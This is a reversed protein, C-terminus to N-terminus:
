KQWSAKVKSPKSYLEFIAYELDIFSALFIAIFVFVVFSAFLLILWVTARASTRVYNRYGHAVHISYM